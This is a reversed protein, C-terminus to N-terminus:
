TFRRLSGDAARELRIKEDHLTRAEISKGHDWTVIATAQFSGGVTYNTYKVKDGPKLSARAKPAVEARPVTVIKPESRPVPPSGPPLTVTINVWEDVIGVRAKSGPVAAEIERAKKSAFQVTGPDARGEGIDGEERSSFHVQNDEGGYIEEEDFGTSRMLRRVKDIALETPASPATKKKPMAAVKRTSNSASYSPPESAYESV